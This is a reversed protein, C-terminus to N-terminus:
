KLLDTTKVISDLTSIFFITNLTKAFVSYGKSKLFQTIESNLVEDYSFGEKRDFGGHCEVLVCLPIYRSWDNSKLVNLDKGEVDVSLFDIRQEKSMYIDLIQSLPMVEVIREDIIKYSSNNVVNEAVKADFTNFAPENFIYFTSKEANEGIGISVNVDRPRMERFLTIAEANADINIGRWGQLYFIYTNSFRYPHHAGVDVYFGNKKNLKSFFSYLIRDEGEQSYTINTYEGLIEILKIHARKIKNKIPSPM